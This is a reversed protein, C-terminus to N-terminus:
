YSGPTAFTLTGNMAYRSTTASDSRPDTVTHRGTARVSLALGEQEPRSRLVQRQGVPERHQLVSVQLGPMAGDYTTSTHAPLIPCSGVPATRDSGFCSTPAPGYNDTPLDTFPDYITTTM